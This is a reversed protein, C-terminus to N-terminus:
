DRETVKRGSSDIRRGSYLQFTCLYGCCSYSCSWVKFGLKVPENPMRIKGGKRGKYKVMMEDVSLEQSPRYNALITRGLVEVVTKVKSAIDRSDTIGKNDDCHLYRWLAKFRNM